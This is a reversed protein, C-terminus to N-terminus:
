RGNESRLFTSEVEEEEPSLKLGLAKKLLNRTLVINWRSNSVRGDVIARGEWTAANARSWDLKGLSALKKQWGEPSQKLLANGAHGLAQLVIGHTHILDRRVMGATIERCQVQRWESLQDAVCEWFSIARQVAQAHDVLEWGAVLAKNALYLASLTFLKGSRPALTTKDMEVLGQFLPSETVVRKTLLATDRGAVDNERWRQAQRVPCHITGAVPLLPDLKM